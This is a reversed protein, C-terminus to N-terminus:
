LSLIANCATVNNAGDNNVIRYLRIHSIGWLNVQITKRVVNSVATENTAVEIKVYYATSWPTGGDCSAQFEFDLTSASGTARTFTVTIAGGDKRSMIKIENSTFDTGNVKTASANVDVATDLFDWDQTYWGFLSVALILISLFLIKRM